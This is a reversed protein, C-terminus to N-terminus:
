LDKSEDPRPDDAALVGAEILLREITEAQKGTETSATRLSHLLREPVVEGLLIEGKAVPWVSLICDRLLGRFLAFAPDAVREQALCVYLGGFAQRPEHQSGPNQNALDNLVVRIADTGQSVVTFGASLAAHRNADSDNIDKTTFGLLQGGLLRSFTTVANVAQDGLWSMDEKTELRNDLWLDFPTAPLLPREFGGEELKTAIEGLRRSCDSRAMVKAQHWLPVLPHHHHLCLMADRFQWHGRM